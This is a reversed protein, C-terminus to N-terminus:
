YAGSGSIVAKPTMLLIKLDLLLSWKQLYKLDLRVMEDFTTRSRGMVQWMGTIGPKASLLRRRHWIHYLDCEYPIPPRPGVLSMDGKLVNILQPLEDFSTKRLFHGVTTIRSDNTLKFIGPEIAATNPQNIYRTIYEKHKLPDNNTTMSRFKYFLFAKGNLGVREQRFFVPGPSTAKIAAAIILFLPSFLLLAIASGASDFIIKKIILSLKRNLGKETLDPYLNLNFPVGASLEQNTEPFVHYSIYINNIWHPNLRELFRDYIKHIATDIFTKDMLAIETFLVGIIKNHHYWGRIDVERLLPILSTKVEDVIKIDQTTEILRSLDLLLLLFPRKSRETRMRELRLMRQFHKEDFFAPDDEIVPDMLTLLNNPHSSAHKGIKLRPMNM